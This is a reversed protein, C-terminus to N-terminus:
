LILVHQDSAHVVQYRLFHPTPTIFFDIVKLLQQGIIPRNHEFKVQVDAIILLFTTQKSALLIFVFGPLKRRTVPGIALIPVIVLFCVVVREGQAAGPLTGPVNYRGIVLPVPVQSHRMGKNVGHTAILVLPLGLQLCTAGALELAQPPYAVRLARDIPGRCNGHQEAAAPAPSHRIISRRSPLSIASVCRCRCIAIAPVITNPLSCSATIPSSMPKM